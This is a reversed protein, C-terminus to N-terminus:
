ILFIMSGLVFHSFTGWLTDKIVMDIPYKDITALNTMNYVGYIVLGSLSYELSNKLNPILLMYINLILLSYAILAPIKKLKIDKNQIKKINENYFKENYVIWTIDMILYIAVALHKNM